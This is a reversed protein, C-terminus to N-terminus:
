NQSSTENLPRLAGGFSEPAAYGIRMGFLDEKPFESRARLVTEAHDEGMEWEGTEVNIALYKGINGSEVQQRIGAEYLAKGRAVTEELTYKTQIAM